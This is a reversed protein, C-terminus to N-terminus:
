LTLVWLKTRFILVMWGMITPISSLHCQKKKNGRRKVIVDKNPICSTLMRVDRKDKWQMCTTSFKLCCAVSKVLVQTECKLYGKAIRKPGKKGHQDCRNVAKTAWRFTGYFLVLQKYILMKGWRVRKGNSDHCYKNSAVSIQERWWDVHRRGCYFNYLEVHLGVIGRGICVNEYLVHKSQKSTSSGVLDIRGISCHKILLFKVNWLSFHSGVNLSILIFLNLKQLDAIHTVWSLSILLICM